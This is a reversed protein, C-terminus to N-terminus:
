GSSDIITQNSVNVIISLTHSCGVETSCTGLASLFYESAGFIKGWREQMMYLECLLLDVYHREASTRFQLGWFGM